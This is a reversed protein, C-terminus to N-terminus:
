KMMARMMAPIAGLQQLLGLQDIVGWHEVVKGDALRVIHLQTWTVKKQTPSIGMFEGKHTGHTTVYHVVKDGDALEQELTFQLDPFATRLLPVFRKYGERGAPFGPPPFHDVYNAALVEDFVALNGKNFAELPIRRAIAKNQEASM